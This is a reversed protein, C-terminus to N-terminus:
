AQKNIMVVIYTIRAYASVTTTFLSKSKAVNSNLVILLTDQRM